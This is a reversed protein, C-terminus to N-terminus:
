RDRGIIGTGIVAGIAAATTAAVWIAFASVAIRVTGFPLALNVYEPWDSVLNYLLPAAAFYAAINASAMEQGFGVPIEITEPQNEEGPIMQEIMLAREGTKFSSFIIKFEGNPAAFQEERETQVKGVRHRGLSKIEGSSKMWDFSITYFMEDEDKLNIRFRNIKRLDDNDLISFFYSREKTPIPLLDGAFIRTTARENAMKDPM